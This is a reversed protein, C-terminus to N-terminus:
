EKEEAPKIEVVARPNPGCDPEIGDVKAQNYLPLTKQWQNVLNEIRTESAPHTSMFEAPANGGSAQAMRQWLPVSERPDFGARSM